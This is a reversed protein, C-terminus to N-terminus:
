IGRAGEQNASPHRRGGPASMTKAARLFGAPSAPTLAPGILGRAGSAAGRPLQRSSLKADGVEVRAGSM